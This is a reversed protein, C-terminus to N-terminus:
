TEITYKCLNYCIYCLEKDLFVIRSGWFGWPKGIKILSHTVTLRQVLPAVPLWKFTFKIRLFSAKKSARPRCKRACVTVTDVISKVRTCNIIYENKNVGTKYKISM